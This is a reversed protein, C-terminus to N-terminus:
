ILLSGKNKGGKGDGGGGGGEGGSRETENSSLDLRVKRNSSNSDQSTLLSGGLVCSRNQDLGVRLLNSHSLIIYPIGEYSRIFDKM